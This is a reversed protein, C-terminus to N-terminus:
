AKNTEEIFFDFEKEYTKPDTLYSSAHSAKPIPVFKHKGKCAKDNQESMSFPVFNDEEGHFFLIPYLSKSVTKLSSYKFINRKLVFSNFLCVSFSAFRSKAIHRIIAYTSTYGCDAIIGKVNEMESSADLLVSNSGMSVGHLYINVNHNYIENIKFVWLRINESEYIGFGSHKGESNGNGEHDIAFLDYHKLQFSNFLAADNDGSSLHGHSFLIVTPKRSNIQNASRRLEGYLKKHRKNTVHYEEFPISKYEKYYEKVELPFLFKENPVDLLCYPEKPRKYVLRYGIIGLITIATIVIGLLSAIVILAIKMFSNYIFSLTFVRILNAYIEESM